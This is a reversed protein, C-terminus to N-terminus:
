DAKLPRGLTDSVRGEVLNEHGGGGCVRRDCGAQHSPEPERGPSRQGARPDATAFSALTRRAGVPLPNPHPPKRSSGRLEALASRDGAAGRELLAEIDSAIHAM